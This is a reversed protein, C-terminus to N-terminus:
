LDPIGVEFRIFASQASGCIALCFLDGEKVRKEYTLLKQLDVMISGLGADVSINWDVKQGVRAHM